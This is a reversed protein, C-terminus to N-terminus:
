SVGTVGYIYSYLGIPTPLVLALRLVLILKLRDESVVRKVGRLHPYEETVELARRCVPKEIQTIGSAVLRGVTAALM